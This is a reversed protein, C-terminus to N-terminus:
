KGPNQLNDELFSSYLLIGKKFSLNFLTLYIQLFAPYSAQFNKVFRDFNRQPDRWERVVVM